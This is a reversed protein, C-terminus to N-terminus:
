ERATSGFHRLEAEDESLIWAELGPSGACLAEIEAESLLMFATTLADVVASPALRPGESLHEAGDTRPRPVAAWAALRGRVPEGTRPDAIHAGKQLGSAGVATQKLSLRAAVKAPMRPDSMTLPWGELGAPPELALVSSFGGHVLAAGIGWEEVLEAMRDVAYGKGIGGLDIGCGDPLLVTRTVPDLVVDRCTFNPGQSGQAGPAQTILEFSRDYGYAVLAPLVLPNFLGHALRSADAAAEVAAFM